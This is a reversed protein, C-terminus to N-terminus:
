QVSPVFISDTPPVAAYISDYRSSTLGRPAQLSTLQVAMGRIGSSRWYTRVNLSPEM